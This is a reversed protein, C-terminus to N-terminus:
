LIWKRKKHGVLAIVILVILPVATEGTARWIRKPGDEYRWPKTFFDRILYEFMAPKTIDEAHRSDLFNEDKFRDKLDEEETEESGNEVTEQAEQNKIQLLEIHFILTSNAPIYGVDKDGYALEPPIRLLRKESVKMGEVGQNLGPIVQNSGLTFTFPSRVSTKEILTDDELTLKYAVVAVQGTQIKPGMGSDLVQVDVAPECLAPAMVMTLMLCIRVFQRM